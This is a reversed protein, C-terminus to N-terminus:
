VAVTDPGHIVFDALSMIGDSQGTAEKVKDAKKKQDETLEAEAGKESAKFVAKPQFGLLAAYGNQLQAVDTRLEGIVKAAKEQEAVLSANLAALADKQEKASTVLLEKLEKLASDETVVPTEAVPETTTEKSALVKDAKDSMEKAQALIAEAKEKGVAKELAALREMNDAMEKEKTGFLRTLFNAEKTRPLLSREKTQIYTYVGDQPEEPKHYFQKSAGFQSAKETFAAGVEDDYFLGSEINIKAHVLSLDCAGLPIYSRKNKEGTHVSGDCHWWLLEGYEGTLEMRDCDEQFAKESIIEGDRDEFASGSWLVWRYHGTDKEKSIIFQSKAEKYVLSPKSLSDYIEEVENSLFESLQRIIDLVDRVDDPENQYAESRLLGTLNAVAYSATEVDWSDSAAMFSDKESLYRAKVEKPTLKMEKADEVNAYLAKLHARAKAKSDHCKVTEGTDKVVCNGKLKYPM